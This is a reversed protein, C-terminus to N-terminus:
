DRTQDPRSPRFVLLPSLTGEDRNLGRNLGRFLRRAAGHHTQTTKQRTSPKVRRRARETVGLRARITEDIEQPPYKKLKSTM